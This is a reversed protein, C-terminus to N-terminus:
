TEAVAWGDIPALGVSEGPRSNSIRSTSNSLWEFYEIFNISKMEVAKRSKSITNLTEMNANDVGVAYFSYKRAEQDALIRDPLDEWSDTPEGDTFLFIWPRFYQIGNEKYRAKRIELLEIGKRIATGMSTTGSASLDQPNFDDATVFDQSIRVDSGFAIIAIEVRKSALADRLIDERFNKLGKNLQAIPQGSMSGSCDLLLIVPCRPESNEAFEISNALQFNGTTM